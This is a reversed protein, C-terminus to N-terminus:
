RLSASAGDLHIVITPDPGCDGGVPERFPRLADAAFLPM